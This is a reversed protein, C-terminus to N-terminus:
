SRHATPIRLKRGIQLSTPLIGGNARTLAHVSVGYRQAIRGLTDGKRVRYTKSSAVTETKKHLEAVRIAHLATPFNSAFQQESGVPIRVDWARTPPTQERVLEPNLLAVSDASANVAKAVAALPVNQPVHVISFSLPAQYDVDDFGYKGPEKGIHGAALMLPVYDRTEQPLYRAIRWFDADEGRESGTQERMIRAIRNEGTNYAAAALYWSGFRDHLEGLYQLAADTAKFPDRREDVYQSVELGYRRGTDSIFQWLGVAAAHSHANPNFGSEIFALYILDQPMKQKKLEDQILPVYRGSRELWRDTKRFNEGKLFDIWNDVRDNRTVPLDWSVAAHSATSAMVEDMPASEPQAADDRGVAWATMMSVGLILTGIAAAKPRGSVRREAM